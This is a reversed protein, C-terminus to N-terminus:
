KIKRTARAARARDKHKEGGKRGERRGLGGTLRDSVERKQLADWDWDWDWDNENELYTENERKFAKEAAVRGEVGMVRKANQSPSPAKGNGQGKPVKTITRYLSSESSAHPAKKREIVRVQV